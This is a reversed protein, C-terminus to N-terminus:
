EKKNDTKKRISKQTNRFQDISSNGSVAKLEGDLNCDDLKSLEEEIDNFGTILKGERSKLTCKHNRVIAECRNGDLKTSIGIIKGELYDKEDEYVLALQVEHVDIFDNGYVSNLTTATIGLRLKKSFLEILTKEYVKDIKNIFKWIVSIDTIRGSNNDKLYGFVEIISDFDEKVIVRKDSNMKKSSIGTVFNKDFLFKFIEILTENDKNAKLMKKKENSSSTNSLVILFDLVKNIASM